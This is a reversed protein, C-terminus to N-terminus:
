SRVAASCGRGHRAAHSLANGEAPLGKIHVSSVVFGRLTCYHAAPMQFQSPRGRVTVGKGGQLDVSRQNSRAGELRKKAAIRNQM